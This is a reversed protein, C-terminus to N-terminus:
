SDYVYGTFYTQQPTIRYTFEVVADMRARIQCNVGVEGGLRDFYTLVVSFWVYKIADSLDSADNATERAAGIHQLRVHLNQDAEKKLAVVDSKWRCRRLSVNTVTVAFKSPSYTPATNV